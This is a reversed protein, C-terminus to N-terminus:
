DYRFGAPNGSKADVVNPYGKEFTVATAGQEADDQGLMANFAEYAQKANYEGSVM